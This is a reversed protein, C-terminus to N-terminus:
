TLYNWYVLCNRYEIFMEDKGLLNDFGIKVM